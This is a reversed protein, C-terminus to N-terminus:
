TKSEMSSSEDDEVCVGVEGLKYSSGDIGGVVGLSQIPAGDLGITSCKM